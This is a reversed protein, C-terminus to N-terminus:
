VRLIRVTKFFLNQYERVTGGIETIVIDAKTKRQAQNIKEIVELPCATCNRCM